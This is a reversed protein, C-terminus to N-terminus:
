DFRIFLMKKEKETDGNSDSLIYSFLLIHWEGRVRTQLTERFQFSGIIM